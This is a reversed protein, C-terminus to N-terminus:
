PFGGSPLTLGGRTQGHMTQFVVTFLSTLMCGPHGKTNPVDEIECDIGIRLPSEPTPVQCDRRGRHYVSGRGWCDMVPTLQRAKAEEHLM